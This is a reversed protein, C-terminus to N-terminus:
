SFLSITCRRRVSPDHLLAMIGHEGLFRQLLRCLASRLRPLLSCKGNDAMGCFAYIISHEALLSFCPLCAMNILTPIAALLSQCTLSKQPTCLCATFMCLVDGSLAAEIILRVSSTKGILRLPRLMSIMKLARVQFANTSLSQNVPRMGVHVSDLSLIQM